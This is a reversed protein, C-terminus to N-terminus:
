KHRHNLRRVCYKTLLTIGWFLMIIIWIFSLLVIIVMQYTYYDEDIDYSIKAECDNLNLCIMRLPTRHIYEYRYKSEQNHNLTWEGSHNNITSTNNNLQKAIHQHAQTTLPTSFTITHWIFYSDYAYDGDEHTEINAFEPLEFDLYHRIHDPNRMQEFCYINYVVFIVGLLIISSLSYLFTKWYTSRKTIRKIGFVILIVLGWLPMILIWLVLAGCWTEFIPSMEAIWYEVRMDNASLYCTLTYGWISSSDTFKYIYNTDYIDDVLNYFEWEANEPDKCREEISQIDDDSLPQSFRIHDNEIFWLNNNNSPHATYLDISTDHINIDLESKLDEGRHILYDFKITHAIGITVYSVALM